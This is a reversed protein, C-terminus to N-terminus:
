LFCFNGGIKRPGCLLAQFGLLTPLDRGFKRKLNKQDKGNALWFLLNDQFGDVRAVADLVPSVIFTNVM